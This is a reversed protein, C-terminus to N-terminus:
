EFFKAWDKDSYGGGGRDWETTNQSAGQNKLFHYFRSFHEIDPRYHGSSPNILLVQGKRGIRIMGAMLVPGSDFFSSHKLQEVSHKPEEAAYVKEDLSWVYLLDGKPLNEGSKSYSAKLFSGKEKVEFSVETQNRKADHFIIRQKLHERSGCKKKLVISSGSGYDLWDFFPELFDDADYKKEWKSYYYKLCGSTRRLPDEAELTHRTAADDHFINLSDKPGIYKKKMKELQELWNTMTIKRVWWTNKASVMKAMNSSTDSDRWIMKELISVLVPSVNRRFISVLKDYEMSNGLFSLIPVHKECSLIATSGSWEVRSANVMDERTPAYEGNTRLFMKIRPANPTEFITNNNLVIGVLRSPDSAVKKVMREGMNPIFVSTASQSCRGESIVIDEHILLGYSICTHSIDENQQGRLDGRIEVVLDSACKPVELLKPTADEEYFEHEGGFGSKKMNHETENKSPSVSNTNHSISLFSFYGLASGLLLIICKLHICKRTTPEEALRQNTM